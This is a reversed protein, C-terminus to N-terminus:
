TFHREKKITDYARSLQQFKDNAVKRMEEGLYAVKDPHYKAALGRYAKKIDIISATRQVGLISYAMKISDDQVFMSGVTRKESTNLKLGINISQLIAKEADSVSGNINALSYLFHTLQLRSSYDLYHQVIVCANELPIKQKLLKNLQAFAKSAEKDGFHQKLFVKVNNAKQKTITGKAKLVAAIVMLLNTAFDGMETQKSSKRFLRIKFSDIATGLIFGVVSGAPAGVEWGMREGMWEGAFWGAVAGIWKVFNGM